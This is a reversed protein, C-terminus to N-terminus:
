FEMTNNHISTVDDISDLVNLFKTLRAKSEEDKIETIMDSKAFYGIGVENIKFGDKKLSLAVNNTEVPDTTIEFINEVPENEEQKVKELDEVGDVELVKELLKDETNYEEPPEIVVYGKKDFFYLTPTMSGGAKTFASRILGVTRSKNDTLAEVIFATGGPGMGEYLCPEMQSKDANSTGSAKKIANEIVKKTVNNKAATEMAAALRVNLNPDTSGGGLKVALSIQNAMKSFLKNKESDNKMKDHKITSWKNHGSFLPTNYSARISAKVSSSFCRIVHNNNRIVPGKGYM